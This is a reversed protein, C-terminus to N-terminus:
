NVQAIRQMVKAVPLLPPPPARSARRKKKRSGDQQTLSQLVSPGLDADEDRYTVGGNLITEDKLEDAEDEVEESRNADAFFPDFKIDADKKWRLMGNKELDTVGEILRRVMDLYEEEDATVTWTDVLEFISKLFGKFNLAEAGAVVLDHSKAWDYDKHWDDMATQLVSDADWPPPIILRCFKTVM